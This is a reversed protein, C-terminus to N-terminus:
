ADAELAAGLLERERTRELLVQRCDGWGFPLIWARGESTSKKDRGLFRSMSGRVAKGPACPLGLSSALGAVEVSLGPSGGLAEAMRAAVICGLAVAEGHTLDFGRASELAHGFTHGLNLIRRRGGELPDGVAIDRKVRLCLEVAESAADPPLPRAALDALLGGLAADGSVLATKLIEGLGSRVEREPLTELLATDVVVAGAPYFTGVQNRARRYNVATKGGLCADAMCLLSTPVLVLNVGRLWLSACLAAVDCVLGGGFGVVFGERMLGSDSMEAIIGGATSMSKLREDAEILASGLVRGGLAAELWATHLSAVSRDAILFVGGAGELVRALGGPGSTSVLSTEWSPSFSAVIKWARASM